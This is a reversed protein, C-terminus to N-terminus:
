LKSMNLVDTVKRATQKEIEEKVLDLSLVGDWSNSISLTILASAQALFKTYMAGPKPVEYEYEYRVFYELTMTEKNDLKGSVKGDDCEEM